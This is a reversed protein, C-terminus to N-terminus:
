LHKSINENKKDNNKSNAVLQFIISLVGIIIATIVGAMLLQTFSKNLIPVISNSVKFTQIYSYGFWAATIITAILAFLSSMSKYGNIKIHYRETEILQERLKIIDDIPINADQMSGNSDMKAENKASVVSHEENYIRNLNDLVKQKRNTDLLPNSIIECIVDEIVENATISNPSQKNARLKGNTVAHIEFFSISTGEGILYILTNTIDQRVKIFKEERQRLFIFIALPIAIISAFSAINQFFSNM